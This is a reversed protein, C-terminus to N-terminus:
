GLGVQWLRADLSYYFHQARTVKDSSVIYVGEFLSECIKKFNWIGKQHARTRRSQVQAEKRYAKLHAILNDNGSEGKRGGCIGYLKTARFNDKGIYITRIAQRYIRDFLANCSTVCRFYLANYNNM